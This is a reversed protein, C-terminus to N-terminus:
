PLAQVTGAPVHAGALRDCLDGILAKRHEVLYFHDGPFTKLAFEGSTARAWQGADEVSCGADRDGVYSTIPVNVRDLYARRHLSLLRYDARLVPLALERIEPIELLKLDVSGLRRMEDLLEADSALHLQRGDARDPVWRGSVFLYRPALRHQHELRLAVEYAVLAGMSHGFLALPPEGASGAVSALTSAVDAAMAGVSPAFPEGFRDQRGPYCVALLEIDPPLEAVWPRYVAAGAGAHPFCVLRARPRKVPHYLRLWSMVSM